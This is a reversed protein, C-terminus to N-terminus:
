PRAEGGFQPFPQTGHLAKRLAIMRTAAPKPAGTASVLGGGPMEPKAAADALEQWCVSHVYPKSLCIMMAKTLWEAQLTDSWPARWMGSDRGQAPASNMSPVGMATVAIPRELSGYHDLMDSLAMLDRTAQGSAPQGMQIRLGLADVQQGSQVVAEAYMLPPISRKNEAHYEGWPQAIELQIKAAPHLKKVVLICVRTLDMIQEFSLKFNSNVHLGSCVTWRSVTRRYRTVLHQVHDYVLERLTEYDNEWIYLWEPICSARLDILPGGVVPLKATRVAWEIWRDTSTTDYRGEAPEMDIWRMPMTVFDCASTAAKQLPESFQDPSITCGILPTGPVVACSSGPVVIPVGAPPKDQTIATYQAAARQYFQGALRLPMAREANAIALKEGADLAQALSARAMKDAQPSFTWADGGPGDSHKQAVLAATFSRRALEFEQLIPDDAPLDFLGWDELKNLFQMIRHRALELSLLYPQERDPLLCTKLALLGIGHEDSAPRVAGNPSLSPAGVPFQILLGATEPSTKDCVLKSDEFRVAGQLPLDQAGFLQALRVPWQTAPADGEFVAFSLM